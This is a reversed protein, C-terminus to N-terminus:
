AGVEALDGAEAHRYKRVTLVAVIAAAFAIGAAVELAHQFGTV